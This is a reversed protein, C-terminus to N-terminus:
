PDLDPFSYYVFALASVSSLFILVLLTLALRTSLGTEPEQEPSTETKVEKSGMERLSSSKDIKTTMNNGNIEPSVNLCLLMPSESKQTKFLFHSNRGRSM